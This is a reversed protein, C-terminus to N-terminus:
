VKQYVFCSDVHVLSECWIGLTSGLLGINNSYFRTALVPTYWLGTQVRIKTQERGYPCTKLWCGLASIGSCFTIYNTTNFRAYAIVM